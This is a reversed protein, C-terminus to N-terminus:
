FYITDLILRILVAVCSHYSTGCACFVIRRCRRITTLYQSLGGLKVKFNDFDIRGRM